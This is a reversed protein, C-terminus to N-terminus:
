EKSAVHPIHASPNYLAANGAAGHEFCNVALSKM